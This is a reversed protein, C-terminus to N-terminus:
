IIRLAPFRLYCTYADAIGDKGFTKKKKGECKTGREDRGNPM